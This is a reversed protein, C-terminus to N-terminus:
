IAIQNYSKKNNEISSLDFAIYHKHLVIEIDDITSAWLKDVARQVPHKEDKM